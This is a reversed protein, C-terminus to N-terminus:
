FNITETADEEPGCLALGWSGQYTRCTKQRDGGNRLHLALIWSAEVLKSIHEDKLLTSAGMRQRAKAHILQKQIRSLKHSKSLLYIGGALISWIPWFFTIKTFVWVWILLQNFVLYLKLENKLARKRSLLKLAKQRLDLNLMEAM